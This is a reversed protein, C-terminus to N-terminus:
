TAACSSRRGAWEPEGAPHQSVVLAAAAVAREADPADLCDAPAAARRLTKRIMPEREEWAAADLEDGFDAATDNDFPAIGWTGTGRRVHGDPSRRVPRGCRPRSATPWPREAQRSWGCGECSNRGRLASPRDVLPRCRPEPESRRRGGSAGARFASPVALPSM